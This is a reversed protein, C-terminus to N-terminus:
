DSDEKKQPPKGIAQLYGKIHDAKRALPKCKMLLNSTSFAFNWVAKFMVAALAPTLRLGEVGTDEISM